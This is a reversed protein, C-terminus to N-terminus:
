GNKGIAVEIPVEWAILTGLISDKYQTDWERKGDAAHALLGRGSFIAIEGVDAEKMDNWIQPLGMGRHKQGTVSEGIVLALRISAVDLDRVELRKFVQAIFSRPWQIPLSRRIGIGLDCVVITLTGDREQTFMWWRRESFPRCGDDRQACYAHHLTNTLAETVGINMGQLLGETIVGEYHELIDGPREDVRTGTAFRWHRVTDDYEDERMSSTDYGMLDLAGIQHLVQRVIRGEKSREEPPLRCRIVQEPGGLRLARDLEAMFLLTGKAELLTCRDFDIVVSMGEQLYARRLRGLFRLMTGRREPHGILFQEPAPIHVFAALRRRAAFPWM